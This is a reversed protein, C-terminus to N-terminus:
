ILGKTSPVATGEVMAAQRGALGLAKFISETKHHDNEGYFRIHLTMRASTAMAELFARLLDSQFDGIMASKLEGSFVLYARGSYDLSVDA